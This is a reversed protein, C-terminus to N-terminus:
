LLDYKFMPNFMPRIHGKKIHSKLAGQLGMKKLNEMFILTIASTICRM